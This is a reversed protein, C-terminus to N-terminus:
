RAVNRTRSNRFDMHTSRIGDMHKNRSDGMHISRTDDRGCIHTGVTPDSTIGRPDVNPPASQGGGFWAWCLILGTRRHGVPEPPLDSIEAAPCPRFDCKSKAQLSLLRAASRRLRLDNSGTISFWRM